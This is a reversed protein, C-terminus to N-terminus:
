YILLLDILFIREWSQIRGQRQVDYLRVAEKYSLGDQM